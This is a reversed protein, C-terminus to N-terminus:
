LLVTKLTVEQYEEEKIKGNIYDKQYQNCDIGWYHTVLAPKDVRNGGSTPSLKGIILPLHALFYPTWDIGM